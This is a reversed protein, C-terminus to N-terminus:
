DVASPLVDIGLAKGIKVALPVTLTTGPLLFLTGVSALKLYDLFYGNARDMDERSAEGRLYQQYVRAVFKGHDVQVHAFRGARHAEDVLRRQALESVGGAAQVADFFGGGATARAEGPPGGTEAVLKHLRRAREGLSQIVSAFAAPSARMLGLFIEPTLERVTSLSVAVATATRAMSELVGMEGLFEGARVHGVTQEGTSGARYVRFQGSEVWYVRESPDGQRLVIEGAPLTRRPLNTDMLITRADSDLRPAMLAARLAEDARHAFRYRSGAGGGDAESGQRAVREILARTRLSLAHLLRQGIQWDGAVQVLFAKRTLVEVESEAILRATGSRRAAVLVGIEGLYDGPAVRGVVESGEAGAATRRTVEAEGTVIRYVLSSADGERFLVHEAALRRRDQAAPMPTM